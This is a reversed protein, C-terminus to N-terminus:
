SRQSRACPTMRDHTNVDDQHMGLDVPVGAVRPAGAERGPRRQMEDLREAEGEVLALHLARSEVVPLVDIQAGPRAPLRELALQRRQALRPEERRLALPQEPVRREARRLVDHEHEPALRAPEGVLQVLAVRIAHDRHRDRRRPTRDSLRDVHTPIAVYSTSRCRRIRPPQASRAIAGSPSPFYTRLGVPGRPSRQAFRLARQM